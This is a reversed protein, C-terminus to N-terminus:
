IVVIDFEGICIELIGSGFFYINWVLIDCYGIVFFGDIILYLWVVLGEMCRLYIIGSLWFINLVVFEVISKIGVGGVIKDWMDVEFICVYM